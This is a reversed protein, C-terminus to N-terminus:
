VTTATTVSNDGINTIYLHTGDPSVGVFQDPNSSSPRDTHTVTDARGILNAPVEASAL